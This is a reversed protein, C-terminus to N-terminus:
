REFDKKNTSITNSANQVQSVMSTEQTVTSSNATSFLENPSSQLSQWKNDFYTVDIQNVGSNNVFTPQWQGQHYVAEMIRNGSNLCDLHMEYGELSQVAIAKYRQDQYDRSGQHKMIKCLTNSLDSVLPSQKELWSSTTNQPEFLEAPNVVPQPRPTQAEDKIKPTPPNSVRRSLDSDSGRRPSEDLSSSRKPANSSAVGRIDRVNESTRTPTSIFNDYESQKIQEARGHSISLNSGQHNQILQSVLNFKQQHSDVIIVQTKGGDAPLLNYQKIGASKLIARTEAIDQPLSFSYLSHDGQKDGIFFSVSPQQTLKGLWAANVRLKEIDLGKFKALVSDTVKEGDKDQWVRVSQNVGKNYQSKALAEQVKAVLADNNSAVGDQGNALSVFSFVNSSNTPQSSSVVQPTQNKVQPQPKVTTSATQELTPQYGVVEHSIKQKQCLDIMQKTGVSKGDWFCVVKDCYNAMEQNRKFGAARDTSGDELKWKAPFSAVKLGKEQAYKEGLTDAGKAKGSVIEVEVGSDFYPKLLTDLKQKLLEYDNFDRGGAVVLKLKNSEQGLPLPQSALSSSLENQVKYPSATVVQYNSPVSPFPQIKGDVLDGLPEFEMAYVKKGEELSKSFLKGLTDPSHKEATAWAKQYDPNKILDTSLQYEKGVKIVVSRNDATAIALDGEKVGYANYLSFNRTTHTRGYGRMADLCNDVPFEQNGILPFQMSIPKGVINLDNNVPNKQNQLALQYASVVANILASNHYKKDKMGSGAYFSNPSETKCTFLYEKGGRKTIETVLNPNETLIRAFKDKIENFPLYETGLSFHQALIDNDKGFTIPITPLQGRKLKHPLPLEMEQAKSPLSNVQGQLNGKILVPEIKNKRLDIYNKEYYNVKQEGFQEVLKPKVNDFTGALKHQYILATEPTFYGLSDNQIDPLKAEFASSSFNFDLDFNAKLYSRDFVDLTGIQKIVQNTTGHLQSDILNLINESPYDSISIGEIEQGYSEVSPYEASTKDSRAGSKKFNALYQEYDNSNQTISDFLKTPLDLKDGLLQLKEATLASAPLVFSSFGRSNSSSLEPHTDAPIVPLNLEQLVEALKETKNPEVAISATLKSEISGNKDQWSLPTFHAIMPYQASKELMYSTLPNEEAEWSRGKDLLNFTDQVSSYDLTSPEVRVKLLSPFNTVQASQPKELLLSAQQKNLIQGISFTKGREDTAYVQVIKKTRPKIEVDREQGSFHHDKYVKDLNTVRLYSGNEGELAVTKGQGVGVATLKRPATPELNSKAYIDSSWEDLRGLRNKGLYVDYGALESVEKAVVQLQQPPLYKGQLDCDGMKSLTINTGDALQLNGQYVTDLEVTGMFKTGVPLQVAKDTLSGIKTAEGSNDIIFISRDLEQNNSASISEDVRVELDYFEGSQFKDLFVPNSEKNDPEIREIKGVKLEKGQFDQFKAAYETGFTQLFFNIGSNSEKVLDYTAKLYANKREPPISASWQAIKEKAPLSLSDAQQITSASRFELKNVTLTDEHKLDYLMNSVNCVTGLPKLKEKVPDYYTAFMKHTPNKESSKLLTISLPELKELSEPTHGHRLLNTIEIERGEDEIILSFGKDIAAKERYRASLAMAKTYESYINLIDTREAITVEDQIDKFLNLNRGSELSLSFPKIKTNVNQVFLSSSDTSNLVPPLSTDYTEKLDLINKLNNNLYGLTSTLDEILESDVPRDSKFTDVAIQNQQAIKSNTESLFQQWIELTRDLEVEPVEENKFVANLTAKTNYLDFKSILDKSLLPENTSAVTYGRFTEMVKADHAQIIEAENPLRLSHYLAASIKQIYQKKSELNSQGIRKSEAETAQLFSALNATKGLTYEDAKRAVVSEISESADPLIKDLKETIKDGSKIASSIAAYAEPYQSQPLAAISDGDFDAALISTFTDQRIVDLQPANLQNSTVLKNYSERWLNLQEVLNKKEEGVIESLPTTAYSPSAFPNISQLQTIDVGVSALAAEQEVVFNRTSFLLRDYMQPSCAIVGQMLEGRDNKLADIHKNTVLAIDTLQIIPSRIAAIKEGEPLYPVAIENNNLDYDCYIMGGKTKIFGTESLSRASSAYMKKLEKAYDSTFILQQHGSEYDERLAIYQYNGCSRWNNEDLDIPKLYDLLREYLKETSTFTENFKAIEKDQQKIAWALGEGEFKQIVSALKFNREQSQAHNSIVLDTSIMGPELRKKGVGKLSSLPLVLDPKETIGYRDLTKQLSAQLTGKAFWEQGPEVGIARYQILRTPDGIQEALEYSIKGHSDGLIQKGTEPSIGEIGTLGTEDDILLIKVKEYRNLSENENTLYRHYPYDKTTDLFPKLLEKYEPPGYVARSGRVLLLTNNEPDPHNEQLMKENMGSDIKAVSLKDSAEPPLIVELLSNEVSETLVDKTDTGITIYQKTYLDINKYTFTMVGSVIM